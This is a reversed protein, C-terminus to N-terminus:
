SCMYKNSYFKRVSLIQLVELNWALVAAVSASFSTNEARTGMLLLSLTLLVPMRLKSEWIILHKAPLTALFDFVGHQYSLVLNFELSARKEQM